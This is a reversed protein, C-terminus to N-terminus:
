GRMIKTAITSNVRKMSLSGSWLAIPDVYMTQLIYLEIPHRYSLSFPDIERLDLECETAIFGVPLL